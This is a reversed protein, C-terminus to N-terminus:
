SVSLRDDVESVGAASWATDVVLRDEAWTKVKGTLTVKQGETVISINDAEIRANRKLAAAINERVDSARVSPKVVISNTVGTVGSLKRVDAEAAGRQYYWDVTGTLTVWGKDVKVKLKDDPVEIDSSLSQLASKAIDDDEKKESSSYRVEIENALGRVGAVRGAAKEAKWKEIYTGVHGTLTM